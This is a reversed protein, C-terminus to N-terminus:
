HWGGYQTTPDGRFGTSTKNADPANIMSEAAVVMNARSYGGLAQAKKAIATTLSNIDYQNISPDVVVSLLAGTGTSVSLVVPLATNEPVELRYHGNDLAASVLLHNQADNLDVSGTKVTGNKDSVTGSLVTANIFTKSGQQIAITQPQNKECATIISALCLALLMSWHHLKIGHWTIPTNM